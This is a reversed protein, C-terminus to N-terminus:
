SLSKSSIKGDADGIVAYSPKEGTKGIYITFPTVDGNTSMVIQPNKKTDNSVDATENGVQVRVQIGNPIAHKNLIADQSPAWKNKKDDTATQLSAFQFSHKSFSVGLVTPQLMAQEEALSVMQTLENAFTEMKKNENRGITLLAVSTVISIIFLVVLIEVLTYGAQAIKSM